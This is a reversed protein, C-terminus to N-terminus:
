IIYLLKIAAFLLFKIMKVLLLFTYSGDLNQREHKSNGGSCSILTEGNPHIAVVAPHYSLPLTHVCEFYRYPNFELIAQQVKLEPVAKRLKYAALQVKKSSDKLAQIVLDLGEQRYKILQSLSNIREHENGSAFSQKVGKIGGLVAGDIPPPNQGGLTADYEKPYDSM